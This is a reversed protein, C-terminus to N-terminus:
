ESITVIKSIIEEKKVKTGSVMFFLEKSDLTETTEISNVVGFNLSTKEEHRILNSNCLGSSTQHKYKFIVLDGVKIEM